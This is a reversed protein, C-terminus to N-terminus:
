RLKLSHLMHLVSKSNHFFLCKLRIKKANKKWWLISDDWCRAVKKKKSFSVVVTAPCEVDRPSPTSNRMKKKAINYFDGMMHGLHSGDRKKTTNRYQM